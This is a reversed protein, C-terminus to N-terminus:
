ILVQLRFNDFIRCVFARNSIGRIARNTGEVFGQTIREEFHNPVESWWNRITKVFNALYRNGSAFAKYVWAKLFAEAQAVDKIKDCITRFEEKLL